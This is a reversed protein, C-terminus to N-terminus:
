KHKSSRPPSQKKFISLRSIEPPTEPKESRFASCGFVVLEIPFLQCRLLRKLLNTSTQLHFRSDQSYITILVMTRWLLLMIYCTYIFMYSGNVHGSLPQNEIVVLVQLPLEPRPAGHFFALRVHVPAHVLVVATHCNAVLHDFKM